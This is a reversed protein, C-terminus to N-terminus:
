NMNILALELVNKQNLILIIPPDCSIFIFHQIM